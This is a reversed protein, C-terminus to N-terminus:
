ASEEKTGAYLPFCATITTGREPASNIQIAGGAIAVRERMGLLGFSQGHRARVQAAHPDFGVGDDRITLQLAADQIQVRVWVHQARAHRIINTLAEQAVRFCTTELTTPLREEPLLGTFHFSVDALRAQRAGYWRLAAVLGLDDLLSPRLDLSLDRVQQLAHEVIGISETLNPAATGAADQAAQLHMKVLTLAQGIEDHLEGAITRREMEQVEILRHSLGQLQERGTRVEAFLRANQLAVALQDAVQRVVDLVDSGFAGPANAALTIVGILVGRALLPVSLYSRLGTIHWEPAM